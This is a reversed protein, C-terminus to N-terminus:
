EFRLTVTRNDAWNSQATWYSIDVPQESAGGVAQCYESRSTVLDGDIAYIGDGARLGARDAATGPIISDILLASDSWGGVLGFRDALRNLVSRELVTFTFGGWGRSEGEALLPLLARLRDISIAFGQNDGDGRTSNMGILDGRGDFLPGGSNGPNIAADVQHVDPYIAFDISDRAPEDWNINIASLSGTTVQLEDATSANAPYGLAVVDDGQEPPELENALPFERLGETERTSLMAVDDCEAVAFVEAERSEDEGELSVEFRDAGTLVHSNTVILGEDEDYVWASGSGFAEDDDFAKVLMTSPRAEKVLESVTKPEEDGLSALVIAGLILVAVGAVFMWPTLSRGGPPPPKAPPPTGTLPGTSTAPAAAPQAERALREFEVRFEAGGITFVHGHELRQQGVVLRDNVRLGTDSDTDRILFGDDGDRAIEAHHPSVAPDDEIQFDCTSAHGLRFPFDDVPVRFGRTELFMQVGNGVGEM